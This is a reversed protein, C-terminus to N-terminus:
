ECDCCAYNTTLNKFIIQFFYCDQAKNLMKIDVSFIFLAINAGSKEYIKTM